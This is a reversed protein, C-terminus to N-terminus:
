RTSRVKTARRDGAAGAGAAPKPLRRESSGATPPFVGVARLHDVVLKGRAQQAELCATRIAGHDGSRIADLIRPEGTHASAAAGPLEAFFGSPLMRGLVRLVSRQRSSGGEANIIRQFEMVLEHTEIPSRARDLQEVIRELREIVAPDNREALHVAALGQVMGVIEFHDRIVSEDFDGVYAGQHARVVALGDRAMGLIAERVPLRSVGLDAAIDDIPIRDGPRLVGDFIQRRLHEAVLDGTAQREL